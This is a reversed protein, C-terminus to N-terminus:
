SAKFFEMNVVEDFSSILDGLGGRGGIAGDTAVVGVAKGEGDGDYMEDAEEGLGVLPL